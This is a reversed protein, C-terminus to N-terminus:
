LTTSCEEGWPLYTGNQCVGVTHGRTWKGHFGWLLGQWSRKQDGTHNTICIMKCWTLDRNKQYTTLYWFGDSVMLFLWFGDSVMLFWWFGDSVMLFGWFGDSLWAKWTAPCPRWPPSDQLSGSGGPCKPLDWQPPASLWTKKKVFITGFWNSGDWTSSTSPRSSKTCSLLEPPSINTRCHSPMSSALSYRNAFPPYHQSWEPIPSVQTGWFPTM